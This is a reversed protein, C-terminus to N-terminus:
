ALAQIKEAVTEPYADEPIRGHLLQLGATSLGSSGLWFRSTLGGGCRRDNRGALTAADLEPFLAIDSEFAPLAEDVHADFSICTTWGYYQAAQLIPGYADQEDASLGAPALSSLQLCALSKGSLGRVLGVLANGVDDLAGFDSAVEDTAGVGLLLDRPSRLMIALDARTGVAHALADLVESVFALSPSHQTLHDILASPSASADGPQRDAKWGALFPALVDIAIVDSRVVRLAQGLTGAFRTPNSYWDEASGAFVRRAYREFDIWRLRDLSGSKWNAIASSM